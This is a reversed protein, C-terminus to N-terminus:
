LVFTTAYKGMNCIVSDSIGNKETESIQLSTLKEFFLRNLLIILCKDKSKRKSIEIKAVVRKLSIFKVFRLKEFVLRNVLIVLIILCRHFNNSRAGILGNM